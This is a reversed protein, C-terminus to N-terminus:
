FLKGSFILLSIATLHFTILISLVKVTSTSLQGFFIDRNNKKCYHNYSNHVVSYLGFLAGSTLYNAQFGNWAGMIVFTLFLATNQRILPYQKLANKRTLFMYIPKFFYDNLFDGLTKHFRRWFDQINQALFPLNFNFPIDFGLLKALGIAMSSYGAFDFYLYFYYAYMGSTFDLIGASVDEIPNLWYRAVLEALVYKQFIGLAIFEMGKELSQANINKYGANLDNKFRNFRDIPGILLTPTFLLFSGWDKFNVTKKSMSSDM